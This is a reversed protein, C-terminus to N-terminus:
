QKHFVVKIPTDGGEQDRLVGECTKGSLGIPFTLNMRDIQGNGFDVSFLVENARHQSINM